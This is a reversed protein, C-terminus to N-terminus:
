ELGLSIIKEDEVNITSKLEFNLNLLIIDEPESGKESIKNYKEKFRRNFTERLKDIVEKQEISLVHYQEISFNDIGIEEKITEKWVKDHEKRLNQYEARMEPYLRRERVKKLSNYAEDITYWIQAHNLDSSFTYSSTLYKKSPKHQIVYAELIM